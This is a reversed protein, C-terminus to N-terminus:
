ELTFYFTTGKQPESEAWISGGHRKIIRDVVSLGIGSGGFEEETHLRQFPKFLRAAYRMDFGAGNDRIYFVRGDARDQVGFAIVPEAQMRTYKWANGILNELANTMLRRDATVKLGPEIVVEVKREPEAEQLSGFIQRAIEGLDLKELMVDTNTMRSLMLLGDMMGTQREAAEKMRELLHRGEPGLREGYEEVLIEGFGLLHRSPARLDHAVSYIFSQLEQTREEVRRELTATLCAIEEEQRKRETIDEVMCHVGVPNGHPDLSLRLYLRADIQHGDRIRFRTETVLPRDSQLLNQIMDERKEPDIYLQEGIDSYTNMVEEPSDYGLMHAFAPNVEVFRGDFNSEFLGLVADRYLSRYREESKILDEEAQKQETIDEILVVFYDPAAKEEKRVLMTSIKAWIVRGDKRVYRKVMVASRTSSGVAIRFRRYEDEVDDPHTVNTWHIQLLEDASYGLIDCLKHNVLLFRGDLACLAAGVLPLEFFQRFRDESARLTEEARRHALRNAILKGLLATAAPFAIIVPLGLLKFADKALSSPLTLMLTLMVGHVVLGLGFLETFTIQQLEGTRYRRWLMGIIASSFITSLGMWIGAGGLCVRYAATMLIALFTPLPGFFLGSISLLVTRADFWVGPAMTWPNMMVVIGIIGLLIGSLFKQWVTLSDRRRLALADYVMGLALLLSINM